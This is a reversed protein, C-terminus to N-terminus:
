PGEPTSIGTRPRALARAQMRVAGVGFTGLVPPRTPQVVVVTVAATDASVEAQGTFGAAQLHQRAAAAAQAPDLQVTHGDSARYVAEDLQAAGARAAADATVQLDRRAAFMLGGDAVLGLIALFALSLVMVLVMVQGAEQDTPSHRRALRPM